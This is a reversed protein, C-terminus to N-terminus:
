KKFNPTAVIGFMNSLGLILLDFGKLYVGARIKFENSLAPDSAIVFAIVTTLVAVGGFAWNAWNPTPSNVAGFQVRTHSEPVSIDAGKVVVEDEKINEM